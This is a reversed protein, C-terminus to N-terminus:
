PYHYKIFDELLLGQFFQVLILAFTFNKTIILIKLILLGPCDSPESCFSVLTANLSLSDCYITNKKKIWVGLPYFPFGVSDLNSCYFGFYAWFGKM